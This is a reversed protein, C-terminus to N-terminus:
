SQQQKISKKGGFIKNSVKLFVNIPFLKILFNFVKYKRGIIYMAKLKKKNAIKFIKKSAYEQSMRKSNNKEVLAQANKVRDQYRENTNFNKIRSNIFNTKVDGPNIVAVQIKADSLEMKLGYSLMSLAAKSACYHIRFPMPFIACCSSINIIKAGSKMLPLACQICKLAGFYNVNFLNKTENFDSLEAAGSIGYGASNILVDIKGYKEKVNNFFNEVQAENTVDVMEEGDKPNKGFPVVVWGKKKFLEGVGKGMGSTGGSIVVVKM